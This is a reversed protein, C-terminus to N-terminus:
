QEIRFRGKQIQMIIRINKKQCSLYVTGFATTDGNKKYSYSTLGYDNLKCVKLTYNKIVKRSSDRVTITNNYKHFSVTYSQQNSLASMQTGQLLYSINQIEDEQSHSNYIPLKIFTLSMLISVIFLVLLMELMTFGKHASLKAM